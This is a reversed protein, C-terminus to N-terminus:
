AGRFPYLLKSIVRDLMALTNPFHEAELRISNHCGFDAYDARDLVTKSICANRNQLKQSFNSFEFHAGNKALCFKKSFQSPWEASIGQPDFM